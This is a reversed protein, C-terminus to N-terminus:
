PDFVRPTIGAIQAKVFTGPSALALQLELVGAALVDVFPVVCETKVWIEKKLLASPLVCVRFTERIPFVSVKEVCHLCLFGKLVSNKLWLVQLAWSYLPKKALALDRGELAVCALPRTVALDKM